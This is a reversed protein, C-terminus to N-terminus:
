GLGRQGRHNLIDDATVDAMADCMESWYDSDIDVTAHSRDKCILKCHRCINALTIQRTTPRV